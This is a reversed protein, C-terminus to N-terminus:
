WSVALSSAAVWGRRRLRVRACAHRITQLSLVLFPQFYYVFYRCPLKFVVCNPFPFGELFLHGFSQFPHPSNRSGLNRGCCRCESHCSSHMQPEAAGPDGGRDPSSSSAVQGQGVTGSEGCSSLSGRLRSPLSRLRGVSRLEGSAQPVSQNRM